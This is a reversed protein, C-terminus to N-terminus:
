PRDARTSDGPAVEAGTSPLEAPAAVMGAFGGALNGTRAAERRRASRWEGPPMGHMRKFLRRFYPGDLFTVSRAIRAVDMDTEILLRRAEAMRRETIWAGVTQGTDRHMRDTLYARSRKVAKAVDALTIPRRYNDDIYHLAASVLCSAAGGADQSAAAVLRACQVLLIRLEARTLEEYGPARADLEAAISELRLQWASREEVPVRLPASGHAGRRLFGFAGVAPTAGDAFALDADTLHPDIAQASFLLVYGRVTSLGRPDHTEGPSIIFVDGAQAPAEVDGLRHVGSGSDIYIIEFFRHSHPAQHVGPHSGDFATVALRLPAPAAPAFDLVLPRTHSRPM